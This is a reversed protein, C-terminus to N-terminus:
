KLRYTFQISGYEHTLFQTTCERAVNHIEFKFLVRKASIACGFIGEWMFAAPATTFGKKDATFLSGQVTANYAQVIVQPQCYFYYETKGSATNSVVSSNTIDNMLGAALLVGAQANTYVNGINASVVPLAKISFNDKTNLLVPMYTIGANMCINQQVQYEWGSVDYLGIAEHLSEQLDKGLSAKGITGLSVNWKINSNNKTFFSRGYEAFLYGCFPRDM